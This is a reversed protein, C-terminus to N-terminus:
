RNLSAAKSFLLARIGDETSANFGSVQGSADHVFHIRGLPSEFTSETVARLNQPPMKISALTLGGANAAVLYTADVEDSHYTGTYAALASSSLERSPPPAAPQKPVPPESKFHSALYVDAVKRAYDRTVLEPTNCLLIVSFHQDPFRLIDSRYGADRGSHEVARLGRYQPVEVGFAYVLEKGSKLKGPEILQQILTSGGVRPTYFNEDWRALDQATTLLNSPGATDLHPNSIKYGGTVKSATPAANTNAPIDYGHALNPVIEAHDDRFHTHRMGLPAFIRAATFDKLSQGSVKKVVHALLTYGTNSYAYDTGPTFNLSRQRFAVRLVDDDTILDDPLRWGAWKLLDWQDRLGSTHNALQRLTIPTGYDPLEPVYKRINDDLSLKGEQALLAISATTFQKSISAVHFVTRSTIPVRNELDAMGYSRDYLPKGDELVLLACGPSSPKDWQAFIADVRTHETSEAMSRGPHLLVALLLSVAVYVSHTRM